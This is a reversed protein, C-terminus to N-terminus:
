VILVQLFYYQFINLLKRTVQCYEIYIFSPVGEKNM